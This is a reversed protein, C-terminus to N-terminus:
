QATKSTKSRRGDARAKVGRNDISKLRAGGIAVSFAATGM